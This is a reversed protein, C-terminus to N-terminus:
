PPSTDHQDTRPMHEGRWNSFTDALFRRRVPIRSSGNGRIVGAAAQPGGVAIAPLTMDIGHKKYIGAEAGLWATSQWTALLGTASLARHRDFPDAWVPAALESM